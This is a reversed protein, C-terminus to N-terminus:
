TDNKTNHEKSLMKKNYLDMVCKKYENSGEQLGKEKCDIEFLSIDKSLLINSLFFLSILLIINKKNM